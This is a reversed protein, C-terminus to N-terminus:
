VNIQAVSGLPLGTCGVSDFYSSTVWNGPSGCLLSLGSVAKRGVREPMYACSCDSCHYQTTCEVFSTFCSPVGLCFAIPHVACVVRLCVVCVRLESCAGLVAWACSHGPGAWCM